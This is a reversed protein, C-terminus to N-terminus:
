HSISVANPVRMLEEDVAHFLKRVTLATGEITASSPQLLSNSMFGNQEVCEIPYVFRQQRSPSKIVKNMALAALM